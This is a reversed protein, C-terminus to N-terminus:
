KDLIQLLKDVKSTLDAIKFNIKDFEYKYKRIDDMQLNNQDEESKERPRMKLKSFISQKESPEEKINFQINNNNNNNNYNMNDTIDRIDINDINDINDIVNNNDAWSVNKKDFLDIVQEIQPLEEAGIKIFKVENMSKNYEPRNVSQNESKYGQKESNLSTEQSKLFTSAQNKDINQQIQEIDFNRQALTKAILSEMESIPEDLNDNFKPKEPVQLTMMNSFESQKQQFQKEIETMRSTQIDEATVRQQQQQQQIPVTKRLTENRDIVTSIFKKNMNMLNKHQTKEKQFFHRINNIFQKQIEDCQETTKNKLLDGDAIVEWIMEVNEKSLFNDIEKNM